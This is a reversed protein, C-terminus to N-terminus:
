ERLSRGTMRLFLDELNTQREVIGTYDVGSIARKIKQTNDSFIYITDGFYDCEFGNLEARVKEFDKDDVGQLEVIMDGPLMAILESPKGQAIFKGNDILVLRDCLQAAEEMYHTTLLITIGRRKLQRIKSWVLHRAQPDLGTTPEDMVIIRPDNILGRALTLRRRMGGSLEQVPSKNRMDLSVFELLEGARRHAVPGPISYYRSYTILNEYTTLDPDLNDEQPIVGLVQKVQRPNKIVDIGEVLLEGSTVSVFCYIMKMITTKGAGNPGLFGFVEGEYIEFDVNDIATFKGYRKTLNKATIVPKV